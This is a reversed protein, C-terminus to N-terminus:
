RFAPRMGAAGPPSMGPGPITGAMGVPAQQPSAMAYPYHQSPAKPPTRQLQLLLSPNKVKVQVCTVWGVVCPPMTM